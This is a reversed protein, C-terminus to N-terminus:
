VVDGRDRNLLMNTYERSIGLEEGLREQSWDPHDLRLRKLAKLAWPRVKESGLGLEKEIREYLPTMYADKKEEYGVWMNFPGTAEKPLGFRVRTFRAMRGSPAKARLYRMGMKGRHDRFPEFPAAIVEKTHTDIRKVEFTLHFLSRFQRTLMESWPATVTVFYGRYRGSSGFLGLAFAAQTWWKQSNADTEADDLEISTGRPPKENVHHMFDKVSFHINELGFTLGLLEAVRENLRFSGYSKGKGPLGFFGVLANMNQVKIRHAIRRAIIEEGDSVKTKASTPGEM